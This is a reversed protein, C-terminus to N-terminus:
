KDAVRLEVRRNQARGDDTDNTAVPKSEGFGEIKIRDAPVGGKVLYDKVSNARSLSLRQNYEDSGKADTHGECVISITGETKLTNIAEDLIPRADARINSKNFDFNVGRLVIKKGTAVPTAAPAAAKATPRPTPLAKPKYSFNYEINLGGTAFRADGRGHVQQALYTMRGFLGVRLGPYLVPLSLGGGANAGWSTDTVSSNPALGTYIGGQVTGYVEVDGVPIDIRPGITGGAVWTADDDVVGPRDKNPLGLIHLNGMVGVLRNYKYAVYPSFSGGNKSFRELPSLPWVVGLETGALAQPEGLIKGTPKAPADAAVSVQACALVGVITLVVWLERRKM